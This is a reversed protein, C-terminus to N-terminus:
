PKRKGKSPKSVAKGKAKYPTKASARARMKSAKSVTKRGRSKAATKRKGSKKAARKKGSKKKYAM